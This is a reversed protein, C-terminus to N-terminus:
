PRERFVGHRQLALVALTSFDLDVNVLQQVHVAVIVSPTIQLYIHFKSNENPQRCHSLFSMKKIM